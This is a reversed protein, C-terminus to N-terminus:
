KPKFHVPKKKEKNMMMNIHGQLFKFIIKLNAWDQIEEAEKTILRDITMFLRNYKNKMQKCNTFHSSIDKVEIQSGCSWKFTDEEIMDSKQSPSSLSQSISQKDNGLKEM